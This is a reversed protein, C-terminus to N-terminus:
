ARPAQAPIIQVRREPEEGRSETRVGDLGRVAMHVIRRDRPSMPDFTIVKGETAVREALRKAMQELQEEHRARYGEADLLIHRRPLGPRHVVRSTLYQMAELVAGKKGIIRGADPGEIELRIEDGDETERDPALTVDAQMQMHGLLTRVFGLARDVQTDAGGEASARPAAVRPEQPREPRPGRRADPRRRGDRGRGGRSGQPQAATAAPATGEANETSTATVTGAVDLENPNSM